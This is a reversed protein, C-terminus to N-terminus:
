EATKGAAASAEAVAENILRLIKPASVRAFELIGRDSGDEELTRGATIQVQAAYGTEERKWLRSRLLSVDPGGVGDVIFYNLVGMSRGDLGGKRFHHLRTTLSGGDYEIWREESAEINWGAAPYCVEPRHPLLDRMRVGYTVLLTVSDGTSEQVYTRHLLDDSDTAQIVREDMSEDRGLWAGIQNPLSALTGRPLFVSGTIDSLHAGAWRHGLGCVLLVIVALAAAM